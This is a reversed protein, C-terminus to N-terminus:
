VAERLWVSYIILSKGGWSLKEEDVHRRILRPGGKGALEFSIRRRLFGDNFNEIKELSLWTWDYRLDVVVEKFKKGVTRNKWTVKRNDESLEMLPVNVHGIIWTEEMVVLKM